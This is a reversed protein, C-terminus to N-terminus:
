KGPKIMKTLVVGVLVALALNNSIVTILTVTIMIVSDKRPGKLILQLSDWKFTRIAIVFMVGTLAAIPIKEILAHLALIIILLVLAATIGSFRKRGGASYNLLSQGLMACGGMGSFLGSVINACGQVITDRNPHGGTKTLDSVLNLTLLSETLSIGAMVLAYPLIIRLTHLSFPIAPLHFRAMGSGLEAIDGVAKTQIGTIAIFLFTIIIAALSSPVLKTIKGFWLVTIISLTVLGTTTLLEPPTLWQQHGGSFSRFHQLQSTFIIIALGNVFGTMVPPQILRILDGLKLLGFIVQITGALIVTAFLYELGYAKTLSALGIAVAGTAGSIMGPRGGFVSTIFGLFFASYLGLVPPVGAIISFALAEPVMALAVTIGALIEKAWISGVPIERRVLL